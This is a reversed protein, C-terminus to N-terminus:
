QWDADASQEFVTTDLRATLGYNGQLWSLAAAVQAAALTWCRQRGAQQM